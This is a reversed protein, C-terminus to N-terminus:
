LGREGYWQGTRPVPGKKANSRAVAWTSPFAARLLRRGVRLVTAPPLACTPGGEPCGDAGRRVAGGAGGQMSRTAINWRSSTCRSLASNSVCGAPLVAGRRICAHFLNSPCIKLRTRRDVEVQVRFRALCCGVIAWTAPQMTYRNGAWLVYPRGQAQRFSIGEHQDSFQGGVETGGIAQM